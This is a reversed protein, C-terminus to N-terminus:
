LERTLSERFEDLYERGLFIKDDANIINQLVSSTVTLARKFRVSNDYNMVEMPVNKEFILADPFVEKYDLDDRPHAKIVLEAGDSYEDVIRKYLAIQQEENELRGTKAFPETLLLFRDKQDKDDSDPKERGGFFAEFINRRDEETLRDEIDKRPVERLKLLVEPDDIEIGDKCNVEVANCYDSFGFPIVGEKGEKRRLFENGSRDYIYEYNTRVGKIHQYSNLSDEHLTYPIKCINLCTGVFGLDWFVNIDNYERFDVGSTIERVYSVLEDCKDKDSLILYDRYPDMDPHDPCAFVNRVNLEKSGSLKKALEAATELGHEELVIDVTQGYVCAKQLTILLQYYSSCAYFSIGKNNM